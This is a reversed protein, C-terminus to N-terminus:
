LCNFNVTTFVSFPISFDSYTEGFMDEANCDVTKYGLEKAAKQYLDALSTVYGPNLHLPGGTGRYALSLNLMKINNYYNKVIGLMTM